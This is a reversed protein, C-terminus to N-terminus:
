MWRTNVYEMLQDTHSTARLTIAALQNKSFDPQIPFTSSTFSTSKFVFGSKLQCDNQPPPNKGAHITFYASKMQNQNM